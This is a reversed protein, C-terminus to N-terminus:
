RHVHFDEFRPNIAAARQLLEKGQDTQGAAIHIMAAQFFLHADKVGSSLAVRMLNLAEPFRGARYLAWALGGQMAFNPRLEVDKRAWKVAEAGDQRVDAYFGALHHYYRVEGRGASELYGALATDHWPKAQDPKGMFLYLDGLAQQLEPRPARAIVKEYLAVAEHSKGQAGLLEAMHEDVLWYGSYAKGAQRYHALAAAYRGRQLDLLGRQLEVWAYSRMEKASIEEEAAQYLSDARDPDGFKAEWYALRALNDWTPNKAIASQYGRQAAAYRGEQLAVGATMAIIQANGAFPSLAKLDRQTEALRHLKFDLNAKLLYLDAFASTQEFAKELAGEAAALDAASATLVARHFLLYALRAAKESDVPAAFAAERLGSMERDIRGLEVEYDTPPSLKNDILSAVPLSFFVVSFTAWAVKRLRVRREASISATMNREFVASELTGGGVM